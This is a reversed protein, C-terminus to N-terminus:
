LDSDIREKQKKNQSEIISKQFIFVIIVPKGENEMNEAVLLQTDNSFSWSESKAAENSSKKTEPEGYKDKMIKIIKTYADSSSPYVASFAILKDKLFEMEITQTKIGVFEGNFAIQLDGVADKAKSKEIFKLKGSVSKLVEKSKTGWKLGMPGAFEAAFCNVSIFAILIISKVM